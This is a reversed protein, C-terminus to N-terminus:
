GGLVAIAQKLADILPSPLTLGLAVLMAFNVPLPAISWKLVDGRGMKDPPEGYLMQNVSALMGAFVVVLLAIGTVAIWANSEIGARFIIFESIFPGFPPLGVLALTGALFAGGTFPSVRM